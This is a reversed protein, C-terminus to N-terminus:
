REAGKGQKKANGSHVIGSATKGIMIHEAEM